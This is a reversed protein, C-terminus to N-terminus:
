VNKSLNDLYANTIQRMVAQLELVRVQFLYVSYGHTDNCNARLEDNEPDMGQSLIYHTLIEDETKPTM